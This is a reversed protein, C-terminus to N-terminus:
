DNYLCLSVHIVNDNVEQQKKIKTVDGSKDPCQITQIQIPLLFISQRIFRVGLM